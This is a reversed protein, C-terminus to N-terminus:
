PSLMATLNTLDAQHCVQSPLWAAFFPFDAFALISATHNRESTAKTCASLLLQSFSRNFALKIATNSM